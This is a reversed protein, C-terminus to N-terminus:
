LNNIWKSKPARQCRSGRLTHTRLSLLFRNTWRQPCSPNYVCVRRMNLLWLAVLRYSNSRRWISCFAWGDPIFAPSTWVVKKYGVALSRNKGFTQIKSDGKLCKLKLDQQLWLVVIAHVWSFSLLALGVAQSRRLLIILFFLGGLCFMLLGSLSAQRPIIRGSCSSPM